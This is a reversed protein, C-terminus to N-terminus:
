PIAAPKGIQILEKVESIEQIFRMAAGIDSAFGVKVKEDTQQLRELLAKVQEAEGSHAEVSALQEM